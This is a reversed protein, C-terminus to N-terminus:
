YLESAFFICMWYHVGFTDSWFLLRVWHVTLCAQVSIRILGQSQSGYKPGPRAMGPVWEPRLVPFPQLPLSPATPLHHTCTSPHTQRLTGAGTCGGGWTCPSGTGQPRQKGPRHASVSFAMWVPHFSPHTPSSPPPPICSFLNSVTLFSVLLCYLLSFIILDM